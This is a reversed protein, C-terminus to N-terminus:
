CCPLDVLWVLDNASVVEGIVLITARRLWVLYLAFFSRKRLFVVNFGILHVALTKLM